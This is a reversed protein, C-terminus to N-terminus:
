VDTWKKTGYPSMVQFLFHTSFIPTFKENVLTGTTPKYPSLNFSLPCQIGTSLPLYRLFDCIKHPNDLKIEAGSVTALQNVAVIM